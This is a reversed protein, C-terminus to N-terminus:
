FSRNRCFECETHIPIIYMLIVTKRRSRKFEGEEILRFDRPEECLIQKQGFAIQAVFAFLCTIFTFM